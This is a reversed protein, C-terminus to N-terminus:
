MENKSLVSIIVMPLITMPASITQGKFKTFYQINDYSFVGGKSPSNPQYSIPILISTNSFSKQQAYKEITSKFVAIDKNGLYASAFGENTNDSFSIDAIKGNQTLDVKLMTFVPTKNVMYMPSYYTYYIDNLIKRLLGTETTPNILENPNITQAFAKTSFCYSITVAMIIKIFSKMNLQM